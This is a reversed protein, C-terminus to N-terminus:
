ESQEEGPAAPEERQPLVRVALGSDASGLVALQVRLTQIGDALTCPPPAKREIADLFGHAQLTFWADRELPPSSEEHWRKDASLMWRWRNQNPEFRVMGKRCVVTILTEDFPQYQNMSYSAMVSGHRAVVHVTDEVTVGPLAQHAADAALRDIPGVLWEAANIMHTLADQIAGGGTRRDAYYINQYAPRVAAFDHGAYVVLQVPEGFEGGALRSRLQALAPHARYVYAVAAVIGQKRVLADLEPVGELSTSLPKEILLHLGQAALRAAIAVHTNAPTAIVAADWDRALADDLTAFRDALSYQAAISERLTANTECIGIQARGTALFCRVHRHGISGTGVILV